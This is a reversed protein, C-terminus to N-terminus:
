RHFTQGTGWFLIELVVDATGRQILGLEGAAGKSVDIVRGESFPGRDNIRVVVSQRTDLRIVRVMTGFPLTKHAATLAHMDFREGNATNRGHFRDGYWSAKGRVEDNRLERALGEVKTQGDSLPRGQASKAACGFSVALVVFFNFVFSLRRM